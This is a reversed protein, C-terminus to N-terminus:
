KTEAHSTTVPKRKRDNYKKFATADHGTQTVGAGALLRRLTTKPISLQASIYRLGFGQGYLDVAENTKPHPNLIPNM